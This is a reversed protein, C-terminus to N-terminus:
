LGFSSNCMFPIAQICSSDPIILNISKVVDGICHNGQKHHWSCSSPLIDKDITDRRCIDIIHSLFCSVREPTNEEDYEHYDSEKEKQVKEDSHNYGSEIRFM